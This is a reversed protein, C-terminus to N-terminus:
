REARSKSWEKALAQLEGDDDDGQLDRWSIGVGGSPPRGPGSRLLESDLGLRQLSRAVFARNQLEDRLGPHARISGSPGVVTPGDRDIAAQLLQARDLAQCAGCLIERAVADDLRFEQVIRDWLAQGHTGLPRPPPQQATPLPVISSRRVKRAM